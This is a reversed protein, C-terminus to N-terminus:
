ILTLKFSEIFQRMSDSSEMIHRYVERENWVTPPTAGANVTVEISIHDNELRDRLFGILNMMNDIFVNRQPESDVTVNWIRKDADPVPLHSRMSNVLVHETPNAAIFENWAATMAAEDYSKDRKPQLSQAEEHQQENLAASAHKLSFAPTHLSTRLPTERATPRHIRPTPTYTAPAESIQQAQRDARQTAPPIASAAAPAAPAMAPKESTAPTIKHLLGEGKGSNLPSPCSLQCLKILTLEVHLQQNS